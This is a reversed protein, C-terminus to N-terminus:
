KILKIKNEINSKLGIYEKTKKNKTHKYTQYKVGLEVNKLKKTEKDQKSYNGRNIIVKNLLELLSDNIMENSENESFILGSFHENDKKGIELLYCYKNVDLEIEILLYERFGLTDLGEKGREKLRYWRDNLEEKKSGANLKTDYFSSKILESNRNFNNDLVKYDLLGKEEKLLNLIELVITFLEKTSQSSFGAYSKMQTVRKDGCDKQEADSAEINEDNLSSEEIKTKDNGNLKEEGFSNPNENESEEDEILKTVDIEIKEYYYDLKGDDIIEVETKRREVSRRRGPLKDGDIDLSPNLPFKESEDDNDNGEKDKGKTGEENEEPPRVIKENVNEQNKKIKGKVDFDSPTEMKDIRLILFVKENLWLGDTVIHFNTPHYPLVVPYRIPSQGDKDGEDFELSSGLSKVRKRSISNFKMYALFKANSVEMRNHLGIYYKSDEIKTNDKDIFEDIATDLDYQLLRQKITKHEPTYASVFLEMAPILVTIGNNDVIKTYRTKHFFKMKTQLHYPIKIRYINSLSDELPEIIENYSVVVPHNNDFNFHFDVCEEYDFSSYSHWNRRVLERNKWVSGIRVDDLSTMPIYTFIDDEGLIFTMNELDVKRLIVQISPIQSKNKVKVAAGYKVILYYSDNKPLGKVKEKKILM